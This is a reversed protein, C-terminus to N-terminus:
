RAASFTLKAFTLTRARSRYTCPRAFVEHQPWAAPKKKGSAASLTLGEDALSKGLAAAYGLAAQETGFVPKLGDFTSSLSVGGARRTLRLWPQWHSGNGLDRAGAEILCPGREQRYITMAIEM